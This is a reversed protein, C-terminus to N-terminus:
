VQEESWGLQIGDSVIGFEALTAKCSYEEIYGPHWGFIYQDLVGLSVKCHHEESRPLEDGFKEELMIAISHDDPVDFHIAGFNDDYGASSPLGLIGAAKVISIDIERNHADLVLEKLNRLQQREFFDAVKM